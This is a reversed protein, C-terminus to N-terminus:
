LTEFQSKAEEIHTEIWIKFDDYFRGLPIDHRDPTSIHVWHGKDMEEKVFSFNRIIRDLDVAKNM